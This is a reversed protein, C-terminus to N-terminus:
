RLPNQRRELLAGARFEAITQYGWASLRAGYRSQWATDSGPAIMVALYRPRIAEVEGPLLSRVSPDVPNGAAVVHGAFYGAEPMALEALDQGRLKALLPKLENWQPTWQKRNLQVIFPGAVLIILAAVTVSRNRRAALLVLAVGIVGIIVIPPFTIKSYLIFLRSAANVGVLGAALWPFRPAVLAVLFLESAALVGDVYRVSNLGNLLFALDGPAACASYVSRFYLMWGCLLCVATWDLPSARREILAQLCRWAAALLAAALIVPFLLGAPSVGGAPLFLAKWLRPDHLNYLISSYSLDATGPLHIFGLNIQFPYFPSGYRIFNHLYYHGSTLLFFAPVCLLVAVRWRPARWLVIAVAIAAFFIGTYKVSAFATGLALLLIDVGRLRAARVVVLTLLVFGAGHLADNKLTPVGSYEYWYHRMLLSGFLALSLLGSPIELERGLLWLALGLLV